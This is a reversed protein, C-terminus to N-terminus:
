YNYRVPNPRTEHVIYQTNTKRQFLNRYNDAKSSFDDGELTDSRIRLTVNFTDDEGEDLNVSTFVTDPQIDTFIRKIREIPTDSEMKDRTKQRVLMKTAEFQQRLNWDNELAAHTCEKLM